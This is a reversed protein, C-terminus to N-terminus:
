EEKIMSHKEVFGEIRSSILKRKWVLVVLIALIGIIIAWGAETKTLFNTIYGFDVVPTIQKWMVYAIFLKNTSKYGNWVVNRRTANSIIDAQPEVAERVEAGPPLEITIRTGEPIIWMGSQYFSNFYNVKLTYETMMSAEKGKAMLQDPLTYSIQLYNEEGENYAIKKNLTNEGLSPVFRANYKKWEDISTGLELSKERFAVKDADTAFYLNYKEIVTDKAPENSDKNDLGIQINITHTTIAYDIAASYAGAIMVSLLFLVLLKAFNQQKM